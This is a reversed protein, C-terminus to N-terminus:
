PTRAQKADVLRVIAAGIQHLPLTFDVHQTRIAAMPMQPFEATEPSQAITTGGAEHVAIIGAAGDHGSGTLVVAVVADAYSRALSRFLADISPHLTTFETSDWLAVAGSRVGLHMAAPATYVHGALVKEGDYAQTVPLTSHRGLIAALSSVRRPDLHQGVFVAAGLDRPLTDIVAALAAIGGASAGLGVAFCAADSGSVTRPFAM